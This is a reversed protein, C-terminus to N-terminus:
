LSKLSTQLIHQLTLSVFEEKSEETRVAGGDTKPLNAASIKRRAALSRRSKATNPDCTSHFVPTITPPPLLPQTDQITDCTSFNYLNLYNIMKVPLELNEIQDDIFGQRTNNNNTLVQRITHISINLLSAPECWYYEFKEKLEIILNPVNSRPYKSEALLTSLIGSESHVSNNRASLVSGLLHITRATNDLCGQEIVSRIFIALPYNQCSDRSQLPDAGYHLLLRTLEISSDLHKLSCSLLSLGKRNRHHVNAGMRLLVLAIQSLLDHDSRSSAEPIQQSLLTLATDEANDAKNVNIDLTSLFSIVRLKDQFSNLRGITLHLMTKGDRTTANVHGNDDNMYEVVDAIIDDPNNADHMDFILDLDTQHSHHGSSSSPSQLWHRLIENGPLHQCCDSYGLKNPCPTSPTKKRKMESLNVDTLGHRTTSPDLDPRSRAPDLDLRKRAPDLNPTWTTSTTHAEPIISAPNAPSPKSCKTISTTSDSIRRTVRRSRLLLESCSNPEPEM